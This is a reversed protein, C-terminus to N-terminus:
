DNDGAAEAPLTLSLVTALDYELGETVVRVADHLALVDDARQALEVDLPDSLQACLTLATNVDALIQVALDGHGMATLLDDMGAGDGGVFLSEFGLLNAEIAAVSIGSIGHEVTDECSSACEHLGLPVALKSERTQTDLYFLADFVANLAEQQSGYPGSDVASLQGSFDDGQLDWARLLSEGQARVGDVLVLSFAVRQAHLQDADLAAWSGDANIDTQTPCANDPGAWLLHELADMGYSNVLNDEFFTTNEWGQAVTEQDIRCPSITPWSYIEDRIDAGAVTDLAAGAPGVQMVELEQWVLMADTWREQASALASARDAESQADAWTELSVSMADTAALFREVTPIVVDPGVANLYAAIAESGPTETAPQVLCGLGATMSGLFIWSYLVPLGARM